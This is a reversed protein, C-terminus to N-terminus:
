RTSRGADGSNVWGNGSLEPDTSHRATEHYPLVPLQEPLGSSVLQLWARAHFEKVSVEVPQYDAPDIDRYGHEVVGHYIQESVVLVLDAWPNTRLQRYVPDGNVLRCAAILDTGAWGQPDDHLEGAHLAVRLRIRPQGVSSTNHGRIRRTAGVASAV